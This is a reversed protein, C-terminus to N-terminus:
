KKMFEMLKRDLHLNAVNAGDPSVAEAGQKM